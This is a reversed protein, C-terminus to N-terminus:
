FHYNVAVSASHSRFSVKAPFFFQYTQSGMDTYAYRAGVSWSTQPIAFDLGAGVTFGTHTATPTFGGRSAEGEGVVFGGFVFPLINDFAVGVRGGLALAWKMEATTTIGAPVSTDDAFLLPLSAFVGYVIQDRQWNYGGQVGAFGGSPDPTGATGTVSSSGAIYGGHIGIYAGSWDHVLSASAPLDAAQAAGTLFLTSVTALLFKKM